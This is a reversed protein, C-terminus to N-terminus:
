PIEDLEYWIYIYKNECMWIMEYLACCSRNMFDWLVHMTTYKM